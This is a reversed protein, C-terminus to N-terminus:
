NMKLIHSELIWTVKNFKKLMYKKNFLNNIENEFYRM